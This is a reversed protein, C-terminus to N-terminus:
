NSVKMACMDMYRCVEYQVRSDPINDANCNFTIRQAGSTQCTITVPESRVIYNIEEPEVIFRPYEQDEGWGGQGFLAFLSKLLTLDHL